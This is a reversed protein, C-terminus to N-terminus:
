GGHRRSGRRREKREIGGFVREIGRHLTAARPLASLVARRCRRCALSIATLLLAYPRGWSHGLQKASPPVPASARQGSVPPRTHGCHPLMSGALGRTLLLSYNVKGLSSGQQSRWADVRIMSQCSRSRKAMGKERERESARVCVRVFSHLSRRRLHSQREAAGDENAAQVGILANQQV